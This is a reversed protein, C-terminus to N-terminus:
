QWDVKSGAIDRFRRVRVTLPWSSSFLGTDTARIYNVELTRSVQRTNTGGFDSDFEDPVYDSTSDDM